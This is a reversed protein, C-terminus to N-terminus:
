RIDAIKVATEPAVRKNWARESEQVRVKKQGRARKSEQKRERQEYASNSGIARKRELTGSLRITTMTRALRPAM